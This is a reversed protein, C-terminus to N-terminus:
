SGFEALAVGMLIISIFYNLDTDFLNIIFQIQGQCYHVKSSSISGHWSPSTQPPSLPSSPGSWAASLPSLSRSVAAWYAQWMSSAYIVLFM